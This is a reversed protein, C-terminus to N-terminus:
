FVNKFILQLYKFNLSKVCVCIGREWTGPVSFIQECQSGMRCMAVLSPPQTPGDRKSPAEEDGGAGCGLVRM